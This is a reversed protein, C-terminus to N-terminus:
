WAPDLIEMLQAAETVRRPNSRLFWDAMSREAIAPLAERAIGLNRLRDPMGLGRFVAAFVAIIAEVPTDSAPLGLAVSLKSLGPAADRANFRLVHPLVVAKAVGNEVDHNAGIAHGLVTAAGAGTHDTGRGGLIGAMALEGRLRDGDADQVLPLGEVLLRISRMLLADSIPDGQASLLGEIALSLTDLAASIVLEAPSSMLFDPHLFISQSRTKPDFLAKRQGAEADFVATGAKVLATNPTTPVILQPIKPKDLRPSTMRGSADTGTCIADLDSGEALFIAAARATVVASGGGVAIIADADLRRLEDVAEDVGTRPTHAKVGGYTGACRSGAGERLLDILPGRSLTNGCFVVARSSGLRALEKELGKLSDPGSFIRLPTEVHQFARM